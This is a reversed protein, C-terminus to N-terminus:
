GLNVNTLNYKGLFKEVATPGKRRLGQDCEDQVQAPHVCYVTPILVDATVPVAQLNPETSETHVFSVLFFPEETSGTPTVPVAAGGNCWVLRGDGDSTGVEGWLITSYKHTAPDFSNFPKNQGPTGRFAYFLRQFDEVTSFTPLHGGTPACM